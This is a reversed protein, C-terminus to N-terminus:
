HVQQALLLLIQVQLALQVLSLQRVAQLALQALVQLVLQALLLPRM